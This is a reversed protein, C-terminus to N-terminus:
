REMIKMRWCTHCEGTCEQVATGLKAQRHKVALLNVGQIMVNRRLLTPEVTDRGLYSAIAAVHEAQILTVQARPV